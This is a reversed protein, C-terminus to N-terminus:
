YVTIDGIVQAACIVWAYRDAQSLKHLLQWMYMLQLMFCIILSAFLETHHILCVCPADQVAEM